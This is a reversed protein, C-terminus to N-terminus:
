QLFPRSYYDWLTPNVNINLQLRDNKFDIEGFDFNSLFHRKQPDLFTCFPGGAGIDIQQTGFPFFFVWGVGGWGGGGGWGVWM